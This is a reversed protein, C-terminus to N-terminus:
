RRERRSRRGSRPHRIWELNREGRYVDSYGGDEGYRTDDYARHRVDEYYEMDDVPGSLYDGYEEPSYRSYGFGSRTGEGYERELRANDYEFAYLRDDHDSFRDWANHIRDGSREDANKVPRTHRLRGRHLRQEDNFSRRERLREIEDYDDYQDRGEDETANTRYIDDRNSYIGMRYDERGYNGRRRNSRTRM